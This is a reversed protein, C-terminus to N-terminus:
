SLSFQLSGLSDPTCISNKQRLTRSRNHKITWSYEKLVLRGSGPVRSAAAEKRDISLGRQRLCYDNAKLMPAHYSLRHTFLDPPHSTKNAPHHDPNKRM